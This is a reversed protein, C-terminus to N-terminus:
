WVVTAMERAEDVHAGHHLAAAVEGGPRQLSLMAYAGLVAERQQIPSEARDRVESLRELHEEVRRRHWGQLVADVDPFYKYLTARGIGAESAMGAMTVSALGRRAILATAADLVTDPVAQRHSQVISPTALLPSVM